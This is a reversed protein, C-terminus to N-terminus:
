RTYYGEALFMPVVFVDAADILRLADCLFPPEKWFAVHVEDFLRRHRIRRAHAYVPASSYRDHASGHGVLLLVRSM